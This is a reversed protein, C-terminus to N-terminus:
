LMFSNGHVCINLTMNFNIIISHSTKLPESSTGSQYSVECLRIVDSRQGLERINSGSM